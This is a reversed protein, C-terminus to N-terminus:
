QVISPSETPQLEKVCLKTIETEQEGVSNETYQVVEHFHLPVLKDMDVLLSYKYGYTNKDPHFRINLYPPLTDSHHYWSSTLEVDYDAGDPFLAMFCPPFNLRKKGLQLYKEKLNLIAPQYQEPLEVLQTNELKIIRDQHASAPQNCFTLILLAFFTRIM